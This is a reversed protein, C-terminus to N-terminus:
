SWPFAVHMSFAATESASRGPFAPNNKVVNRLCYGCKQLYAQIADPDNGMDFTPAGFEFVCCSIKERRPMQRAGFLAQYEPRLCADFIETNPGVARIACRIACSQWQIWPVVSSFYPEGLGPWEKWEQWASRRLRLTEWRWCRVVILIESNLHAAVAFAM